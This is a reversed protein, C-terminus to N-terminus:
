LLPIDKIRNAFVKSMIKADANVLSIPRWNEILTRDKGKKETLTIVAQRQSNSMEEKDFSENVCDIFPKSILDWCSKYFEIPLGDNGPSKNNQFTEIIIRCDETSIRGECSQRQEESLKPINLSNLFAEISDTAEVSDKTKYLNQYFRKQEALIRYPDTTISGSILLKRIHKKVHNRKELNLFYKTSREGYEHWRARARIVIGKVKEEYLLELKEKIEDLRLRNSASPDNEFLRNADKLEQQIRQEKKYKLKAKEKSYSIAHLRINYKIWDWVCRKDSLDIEGEQKWKPINIRLQELYNEDELLSVNMKWIGPGKIEGIDGLALTIAAHDTRIAPQIETANIFDCLNNSILWFDLRCLVTPSKQSWTYSRTQPNKIRWIDVLDLESQLTEISDIAARRPIMVGGHKDLAPNLPCNFDGGLIINEESDLDEMQLLGRLKRFFQILDKDKNPAYINVLVYVKDDIQIKLIIFRGLPDRTTSLVSYNTNNRILIATGCSNPSGHSFLIEGDWENKWQVETEKKSHTEQLFVFDAKQKRCWTYITRRKTFNSIGRVNLSVLKM